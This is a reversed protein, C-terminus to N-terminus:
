HRSASTAAVPEDHTKRMVFPSSKAIGLILSSLKYHGPAADVV